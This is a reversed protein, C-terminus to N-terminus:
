KGIQEYKAVNRLSAWIETTEGGIHWYAFGAVGRELAMEYKLSLSRSEELWIRHKLGSQWYTTIYQGM